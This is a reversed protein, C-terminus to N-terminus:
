QTTFKKLWLLKHLGEVLVSSQPNKVCEITSFVGRIEAETPPLYTPDSTFLTLLLFSSGNQIPYSKLYRVVRGHTVQAERPMGMELM